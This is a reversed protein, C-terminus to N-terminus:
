CPRARVLRSMRLNGFLAFLMLQRWGGRRARLASRRTSRRWIARQAPEPPPPDRQAQHRTRHSAPTRQHRPFNRVLVLRVVESGAAVYGRRALSESACRWQEATSPSTASPRPAGRPRVLDGLPPDCGAANKVLCTKSPARRIQPAKQALARQLAPLGLRERKMPSSCTRERDFVILIALTACPPEFFPTTTTFAHRSAAARTDLDPLVLPHPSM